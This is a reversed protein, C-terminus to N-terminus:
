VFYERYKENINDFGRYEHHLNLIEVLGNEDGSEICEVIKLHNRYSDNLSNPLMMDLVLIRNYHSRTNSIIKWIMDHKGYSFLAGHFEDDKLIFETVDQKKVALNMFYLKDEVLDKVKAQERCMNLLIENEIIHRMYAMEKALSLDIKSVYTGRQPFIEVLLEDSLLLLAERIPTRSVGLEAALDAEVIKTGPKLVLFQIANKLITYVNVKSTAKQKDGFLESISSNM